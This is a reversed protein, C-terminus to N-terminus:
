PNGQIEGARTLIGASHCSRAPPLDLGAGELHGPRPAEQQGFGCGPQLLIESDIMLDRCEGRAIFDHDLRSIKEVVGVRAVVDRPGTVGPCPSFM